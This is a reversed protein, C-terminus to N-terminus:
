YVGNLLVSLYYNICMFLSEILTIQDKDHRINEIICKLSM